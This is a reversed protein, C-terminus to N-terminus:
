LLCQQQTQSLFPASALLGGVSGVDIPSAFTVSITDPTGPIAGPNVDAFFTPINPNGFSIDSNTLAIAQAPAAHAVAGLGIALSGVALMQTLITSKSSSQISNSVNTLQKVKM